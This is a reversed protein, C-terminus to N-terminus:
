STLDKDGTATQHPEVASQAKGISGLDDTGGGM